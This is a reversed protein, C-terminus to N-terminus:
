QVEIKKNVNIAAEPLQTSGFDGLKGYAIVKGAELQVFYAELDYRVDARARLHYVLYEVGETARTETPRGAASIVEQKSMGLAIKNMKHLNTPACGALAVLAFVAFLKFINKM